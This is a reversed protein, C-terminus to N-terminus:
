LFRAITRFMKQVDVPKSLHDDMGATLANQRDEEFANVTMAIIPIYVGEPGPIARIAKTAEYGTMRPMQVDMLIFDYYHFEGRDVAAQVLAVAIDGDEADEVLLGQEELIDRAIERNMENDEVLLVRRGKFSVIDINESEKACQVANEDIRFDVTIDFRTGKGPESQVEIKGGMLDIISKVISLGM